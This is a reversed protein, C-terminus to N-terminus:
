GQEVEEAAKKAEGLVGGLKQHFAEAGEQTFIATMGGIRIHVPTNAVRADDLTIEVVASTEAGYLVDAKLM